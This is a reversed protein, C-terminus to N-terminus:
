QKEIRVAYGKILASATKERASTLIRFLTPQSINMKKAAEEQKLGEVDCLRLAEAEDIRLIIEKLERVPVGAPKFYTVGPNFSVRRRRCPRVM